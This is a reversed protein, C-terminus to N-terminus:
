KSFTSSIRSVYIIWLAEGSLLFAKTISLSSWSLFTTSNETDLQAPLTSLVLLAATEFFHFLDVLGCLELLAILTIYIKGQSTSSTIFICFLSFKTQLMVTVAYLRSIPFVDITLLEISGCDDEYTFPTQPLSTNTNYLCLPSGGYFTFSNPDWLKPIMTFPTQRFFDSPLADIPQFTITLTTYLQKVSEPIAELSLFEGFINRVLGTENTYSNNPGNFLVLQDDFPGLARIDNSAGCILSTNLIQATWLDNDTYWFFILSTWVSNGGASRKDIGDHNSGLINQILISESIGTSQGNQLEDGIHLKELFVHPTELLALKISITFINDPGSYKVFFDTMNINRLMSEYYVAGNNTYKSACRAQRADTHAVERTKNFDVWCQQMMPNKAWGAPITRLILVVFELDVLKISHFNAHTAIM